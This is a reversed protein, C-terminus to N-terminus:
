IESWFLYKGFVLSFGRERLVICLIRVSIFCFRIKINKEVMESYTKPTSFIWM